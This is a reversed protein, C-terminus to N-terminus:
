GHFSRILAAIRRCCRGDIKDHTPLGVLQTAIGSAGPCSASDFGYSKLATESEVPYIPTSKPWPILEVRTRAAEQLVAKKNKTRVPFYFLPQDLDVPPIDVSGALLDRYDLCSERRCGAWQEVRDLARAGERMQWEGPVCM